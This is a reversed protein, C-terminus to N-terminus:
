TGARASPGCHFIETVRQRGRWFNNYVINCGGRLALNGTAARPDVGQRAVEELLAEDTTIGYTPGWADEYHNRATGGIETVRIANAWRAEEAAARAIADAAAARDREQQATVALRLREVRDAELTVARTSPGFVPRMPAGWAGARQVVDKVAVSRTPVSSFRSTPPPTSPRATTSASKAQGSPACGFKTPPPPIRTV